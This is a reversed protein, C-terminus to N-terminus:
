VGDKDCRISRLLSSRERYVIFDETSALEARSLLLRQERYDETPALEARSEYNQLCM